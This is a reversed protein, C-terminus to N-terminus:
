RGSASSWQAPRPANGRRIVTELLDLQETAHQILKGLGAVDRPLELADAHLRRAKALGVKPYVGVFYNERPAQADPRAPAVSRRNARISCASGHAAQTKSPDPNGSLSRWSNRRAKSSRRCRTTAVLALKRSTHQWPLLRPRRLCREAGRQLSQEPAPTRSGLSLGARPPTQLPDRAGRGCRHPTRREPGLQDTALPPWKLHAQHSAPRHEPV